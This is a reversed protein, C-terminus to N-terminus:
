VSLIAVSLNRERPGDLEVLMVSQWSGRMIEGNKIILTLSTGILSTAMHSWAHSPDHGHRFSIKPIIKQAVELFDDDTGDGIEGTTLCCTTHHVAVTIIGESIKETHIFDNLHPTLDVIEKKRKTSISISGVM